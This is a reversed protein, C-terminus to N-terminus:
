SFSEVNVFSFFALVSYGILRPDAPPPTTYVVVSRALCWERYTLTTFLTAVARFGALCLSDMEDEFTPIGISMTRAPIPLFSTM